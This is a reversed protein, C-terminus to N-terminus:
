CIAKSCRVKENDCHGPLKPGTKQLWSLWDKDWINIWNGVQLVARFCLVTTLVSQDSAWQVTM